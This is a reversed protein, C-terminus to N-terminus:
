FCKKNILLFCFSPVLFYLNCNGKNISTVDSTGADLLFKTNTGAKLLDYHLPIRGHRDRENLLRTMTKKDGSQVIKEMIQPNVKHFALLHLINMLGYQGYEDVNQVGDELGKKLEVEEEM